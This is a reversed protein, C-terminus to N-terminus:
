LAQITLWSQDTMQIQSLFLLQVQLQFLAMLLQLLLRIPSQTEFDLLAGTKVVISGISNSSSISFPVNAPISYTLTDTRVTPTTHTNPDIGSIQGVAVNAASNENVSFSMTLVPFYPAKNVESLNITITGTGSLGSDAGTNTVQVQLTYVNITLFNLITLPGSSVKIQGTSESIVFANNTNGSLITYVLAYGTSDTATVTGVNANTNADEAITFSTSTVVPPSSSAVIRVCVRSETSIGNSAGSTDTAVVIFCFVAGNTFLTADNKAVKVAGSVNDISFVPTVSGFTNNSASSASISYRIVDLYDQDLAVVTGVVTGFLSNQAASFSYLSSTFWPAENVNDVLLTCTSTAEKVAGDVGADRVRISLTFSPTNEFDFVFNSRLNFTYSGQNSTPNDFTVPNSGGYSTPNSFGGPNNTNVTSLVSQYSTLSAQLVDGANNNNKIDPDTAGLTGTVITGVPVNENVRFTCPNSTISPAKNVHLVSIVVNSVSQLASTSLGPSGSDRLTIQLTYSQSTEYVLNTRDVVFIQGTSPSISFIGNSNGSTISPILTGKELSDEPDKLGPSVSLATGVFAQNTANEWVTMGSIAVPTGPQPGFSAAFVPPENLNGLSIIVDKQSSQPTTASDEIKVRLTYTPKVEFDLAATAAGASTLLLQGTSEDISFLGLNVDGSGSVLSYKITRWAVVSLTDPDSSTIPTGVTTSSSRSSCTSGCTEDITRSLTSGSETFVPAENVDTLTVTFTGLTIKGGGDTVRLLLSFSKQNSDEFNLLQAGGKAVSIVGTNSSTSSAPFTSSTVSFIGQDNGGIIAYTQTYWSYIPTTRGSVTLSDQDTVSIVGVSDGAVSNEPLTVSLSNVVFVPADDADDISITVISMTSLAPSGNDTVTVELTYSQTTEYDFSVGTAIYIQGSCPDITFFSSGTGGTISFFVRQNQDDDYPTLPSGVTTPGVINESISRSLSGTLVPRENVNILNITVSATTPLNGGDTVTVSLTYSSQTEFNLNSTSSATGTCCTVSSSVTIIGSQPDITFLNSGTMAYTLKAWTSGARDPDSAILAGGTGGCTVQTGPNSNLAFTQEQVTCSQATFIPNENVDNVYLAVLASTSLSVFGSSTSSDRVVATLLYTNQAEFNLIAGTEVSLARDSAGISFIASTGLINNSSSLSYVLTQTAGGHSTSWFTDPDTATSVLSSAVVGAGTNENVSFCAVFSASTALVNPATLYDNTYTPPSCSVLTPWSPAENVDLVSVIVTSFESSQVTSVAVDEILVELGYSKQTEYNLGTGTEVTSLVGTSQGL